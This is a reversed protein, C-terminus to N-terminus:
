SDGLKEIKLIYTHGLFRFFAPHRIPDSVRLQDWQNSLPLYPDIESDAPTRKDLYTPTGKQTLGELEKANMKLSSAILDAQVSGIKLSIEDLLADQQIDFGRQAVIAGSDVPDEMRILSMTFRSKGDLIQWVIPSWGRGEPLDSGHLVFSHGYSERVRKPVMRPYSLAFLFEGGQCDEHNDVIEIFRSKHAQSLASITAMVTPNNQNGLLTVKM